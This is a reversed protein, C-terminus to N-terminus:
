LDRLSRQLLPLLISSRWTAKGSGCDFFGNTSLGTVPNTPSTTVIRSDRIADRYCPANTGTRYGGIIRGQAFDFPSQWAAGSDIFAPRPTGIYLSRDGEAAVFRQSELGPSAQNDRPALSKKSAFWGFWGCGKSSVPFVM